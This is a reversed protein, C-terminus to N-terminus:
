WLELRTKGGREACFELRLTGPRAGVVPIGSPPCEGDLHRSGEDGPRAPPSWRVGSPGSWAALSAADAFALRVAAPPATFIRSIRLEYMVETLPGEGERRTRAPWGPPRNPPLRGLGSGIRSFRGGPM